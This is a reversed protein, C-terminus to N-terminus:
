IAAPYDLVNIDFIVSLMQLLNPAISCKASSTYCSFGVFLVM